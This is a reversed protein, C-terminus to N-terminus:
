KDRLENLIPIDTAPKPAPFTKLYTYIDTLERDPLVKETFAPMAGGPRRVYRIVATASLSSAAIRPGDRGGQGAYGHCQFCGVKEYLRKGNVSNGPTQALVVGAFILAAVAIKKM